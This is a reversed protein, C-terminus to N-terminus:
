ACAHNTLKSYLVFLYLLMVIAIVTTACAVFFLRGAQCNVNRLRPAIIGCFIGWMASLTVLLIVFWIHRHCFPSQSLAGQVLLEGSTQSVPFSFYPLLAYIAYVAMGTAVWNMGVRLRMSYM